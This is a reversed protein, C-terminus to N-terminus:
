KENLLMVYNYLIQIMLKSTIQSIHAQEKAPQNIAVVM